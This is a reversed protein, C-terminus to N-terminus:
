RKMKKNSLMLDLMLTTQGRNDTMGAPLGGPSIIKLNM